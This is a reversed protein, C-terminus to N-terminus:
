APGFGDAEDEVSFLCYPPKLWDSDGVLDHYDKSAKLSRLTVGQLGEASSRLWAETGRGERWRLWPLQTWGVYAGRVGLRELGVGRGICARM